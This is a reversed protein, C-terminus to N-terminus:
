RLDTSCRRSRMNWTRKLLLSKRYYETWGTHHQHNFIKQISAYLQVSRQRYNYKSRTKFSSTLFPNVFSFTVNMVPHGFLYVLCVAHGLLRSGKWITIGYIFYSPYSSKPWLTSIRYSNMESNLTILFNKKFWLM